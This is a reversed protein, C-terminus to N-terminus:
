DSVVGQIIGLAKADKVINEKLLKSENAILEEEKKIPDVFGKEVIDWLEYSRFIIKM